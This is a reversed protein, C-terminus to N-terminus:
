NNSSFEKRCTFELHIRGLKTSKNPFLFYWIRHVILNHVNWCPALLRVAFAFLQSLCKCLMVHMNNSIFIHPLHQFAQVYRSKSPDQDSLLNSLLPDGRTYRDGPMQAHSWHAWMTRTVSESFLSVQDLIKPRGCGLKTDRASTGQGPCTDSGVSHPCSSTAGCSVTLILQCKKVCRFQKAQAQYQTLVM